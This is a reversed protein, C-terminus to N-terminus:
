YMVICIGSGGAGGARAVNATTQTGGGGGGTNAGAAGGTSNVSPTGGIGFNTAGGHTGSAASGGNGGAICQRAPNAGSASPTAGLGGVPSDTNGALGKPAVVTGDFSSDEGSTGVVVAYESSPTVTYPYNIITGGGGGGTGYSGTSAATGAGSGGGGVMTLYVTTIGAPATFTGDSTFVQVGSLGEINAKPIKKSDTGDHDHGTTTNFKLEVYAETASETQLKQIRRWYDQLQDNLVPASENELNDLNEQAYLSCSLLLFIIILTIKRV